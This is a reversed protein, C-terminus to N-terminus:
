GIALYQYSVVKRRQRMMWRAARTRTAARVCRGESQVEGRAARYGAHRRPHIRAGKRGRREEEELSRRYVVASQAGAGEDSVLLELLIPAHLTKIRQKQARSPPLPLFNLTLAQDGRSKM